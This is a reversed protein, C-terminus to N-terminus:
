AICDLVVCRPAFLAMIWILQCYILIPSNMYARSVQFFSKVLKKFVRRQRNIRIDRNEFQTILHKVTRWTYTGSLHMQLYTYIVSFCFPVRHLSNRIQMLWLKRLLCCWLKYATWRIQFYCECKWTSHYCQVLSQAPSQLHAQVNTPKYM